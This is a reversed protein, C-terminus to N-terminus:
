DSVPISLIDGSRISVLKLSGSARAKFYGTEALHLFVYFLYDPLLRDKAVVTIGFAEPAFTKTPRGVAKDTGRRTVWFDAAPDNLKVKIMDGLTAM